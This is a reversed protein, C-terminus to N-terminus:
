GAWITGIHQLGDAVYRLDELLLPAAAILRANADYDPHDRRVEAIVERSRGQDAASFHAFILSQERSENAELQEKSWRRTQETLLTTGRTWEM